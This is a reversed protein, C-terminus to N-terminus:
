LYAIRLFETARLNPTKSFQVVEYAGSNAKPNDENTLDTLEGLFLVDGVSMDEGVFVKSRTTVVTGDVGIIEETKDEWRVDIEQPDGHIPQGYNDFQVEGSDTTLPWWVATQKRMRTILSM